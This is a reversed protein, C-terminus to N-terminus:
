KVNSPVFKFLIIACLCLIVTYIKHTARTHTPTKIHTNAVEYLHVHGGSLMWWIAHTVM